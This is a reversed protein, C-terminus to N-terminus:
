PWWSGVDVTSNALDRVVVEGGVSHIAGASRRLATLLLGRRVRAGLELIEAIAAAYEAERLGAILAALAEVRNDADKFALALSWAQKAEEPLLHPGAEVLLARRHNEIETRRVM